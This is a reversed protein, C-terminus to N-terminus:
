ESLYKDEEYRGKLISRIGGKDDVQVDMRGWMQRRGIIAQDWRWCWLMTSFVRGDDIATYAQGIRLTTPFGTRDCPPLLTMETQGTPQKSLLQQWQLISYLFSHAESSPRLSTIQSTSDASFDRGSRSPQPRLPLFTQSIIFADKHSVKRGETKVARLLLVRRIWAEEEESEEEREM